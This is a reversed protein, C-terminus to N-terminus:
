TGMSVTSEYHDPEFGRKRDPGAAGGGWGQNRLEDQMRREEQQQRALDQETMMPGINPLYHQFLAPFQRGYSTNLQNLMKCIGAMTEPHISFPQSQAELMRPILRKIHVDTFGIIFLKLLEAQLQTHLKTELYFRNMYTFIPVIGSVAHLYRSLSEDFKLIIQDDPVDHMLRSCEAIRTRIHNILDFYLKESFQKCVCKYVASYMEEYSIPTYGGPPNDLMTDIAARLKNWYQSHYEEITMMSNSNYGSSEPMKIAAIIDSKM